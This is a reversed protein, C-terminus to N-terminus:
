SLLAAVLKIIFGISGVLFFGLLCIKSMDIFEKLSPKKARKITRICDDIIERLDLKVM